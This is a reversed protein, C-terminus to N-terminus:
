TNTNCIIKIFEVPDYWYTGVMADVDSLDFTEDGAVFDVGFVALSPINTAPYRKGTERTKVSVARKQLNCHTCLPQFDEMVQTKTDLVRPDNYLDNKHDIVISTNSGCVVCPGDKLAKRIDSRIPRNLRVRTDSHGNMRLALVKRSSGRSFDWVYRDDNWVTNNRTNGNTTWPLGRSMCEEVTVWRSVGAVNPKFITDILLLRPNM